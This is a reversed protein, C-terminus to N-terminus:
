ARDPADGVQRAIMAASAFSFVLTLGFLGISKFTVWTDTSYLFAVALNLAGLVAFFASWAYLLRDWVATPLAIEGTLVAGLLNRGALLKGGLLVAAFIWYLLTPKWKIFWENQLWITLGGFVIILAAGVWVMPPVPKRRLLLLGIQLATAAIAVLTALIVAVLEPAPLGTAHLPGVIATVWSQAADPFARAIRFSGFFAIVPFLDLLLKM